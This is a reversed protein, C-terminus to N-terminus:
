QTDQMRDHYPEPISNMLVNWQINAVALLQGVNDHLEWAINKLAQEQIAIKSDALERQYRNEGEYREKLFQNKRRQFAMFFVVVFLVVLFIISIFYVLLLIEEKKLM